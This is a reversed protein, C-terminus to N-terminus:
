TTPCGGAYGFIRVDSPVDFKMRAVRLQLQESGFKPQRSALASAAQSEELM